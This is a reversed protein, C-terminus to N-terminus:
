AAGKEAPHRYRLLTVEPSLMLRGTEVAGVRAALRIARANRADITSAPTAQGNKRGWDLAARLGEEALGKGQADPTLALSLDPEAAEAGPFFGAHGLFQDSWRDALAWVGVAHVVWAGACALFREWAAARTALGWMMAAHPAAHLAAFPAFDRPALPRLTLRPTQLVPVQHVPLTIM